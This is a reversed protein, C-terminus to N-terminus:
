QGAGVYRYLESLRLNLNTPEFSASLNSDRRQYSAWSDDIADLLEDAWVIGVHYLMQASQQQHM